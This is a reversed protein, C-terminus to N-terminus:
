TDVSITYDYEITPIITAIFKLFYFMSLAVKPEKGNEVIAEVIRKMVKSHRCPHISACRHGFHPHEEITVTKHAHETSVDEM